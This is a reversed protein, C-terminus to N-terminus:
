NSHETKRQKKAVSVIRYTLWASFTTLHTAPRKSRKAIHPFLKRCGNLVM